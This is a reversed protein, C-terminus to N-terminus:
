PNAEAVVVGGSQGTNGILHTASGAVLGGAVNLNFWAGNQRATSAAVSTVAVAGGSANYVALLPSGSITITPQVAKVVKFPWNFVAATTSYCQGGGLLIETNNGTIYEYYRLCRALDDAPHMPVYDAAVSGVVLMANDIYATCSASIWFHIALSSGNTAYLTTMTLTQWQSNGTHYPTYAVSSVGDNVTARIANAANCWVRASLTVTLGRLCNYEGSGTQQTIRSGQNAGPVTAVVKLSANSGVDVVSTERTISFTDSGGLATQWRDASLVQGTFPGNGRQWIEMGGNTLLNNKEVDSALKANTVAGAALDVTAITGDLIKASTVAGDKLDATDITGDAIMASTITGNPISGAAMPLGKGTSHDHTSVAAALNQVDEKKFPDTAATARSFTPATYFPDSEIRAM